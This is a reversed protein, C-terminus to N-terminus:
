VPYLRLQGKKSKEDQDGKYISNKRICMGSRKRKEPLRAIERDPIHKAGAIIREQLAGETIAAEDAEPRKIAAPLSRAERGDGAM